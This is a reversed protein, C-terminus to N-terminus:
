KTIEEIKARSVKGFGCGGPDTLKSGSLALASVHDKAHYHPADCDSGMGIYLNDLPIQQGNFILVKIKAQGPSAPPYPNKSSQDAKHNFMQYGVVAFVAILTVLGLPGKAGAAIRTWSNIKNQGLEQAVRDIEGKLENWNRLVLLIIRKREKEEETGEPLHEASVEVIQGGGLRQWDSLHKTLVMLIEDIKPHAGRVLTQLSQLTALSPSAGTLLNQAAKIKQQIDELKIPGAM